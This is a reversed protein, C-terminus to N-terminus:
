RSVYRGLGRLAYGANHIRARVNEFPEVTVKMHHANAHILTHADLFLAVHGDWFALDGREPSVIPLAAEFQPGSDSPIDVGIARYAAHTLGSCDLGASTDGGWLYPAHLFMQAVFAADDFFTEVPAVHGNPVYGFESRFFGDEEVGTLGAGFPLFLRSVDKINPTEFAITQLTTVKHTPAAGDGVAIQEVWGSYGDRVRTVAILDKVSTGLRVEDGALFQRAMSSIDPDTFISAYPVKIRTM